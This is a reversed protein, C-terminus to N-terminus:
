GSVEVSMVLDAVVTLYRDAQGPPVETRVVLVTRSPGSGAAPDSVIALILDARAGEVTTHTVELGNALSEDSWTPADLDPADEAGTEDAPVDDALTSSQLAGLGLTEADRDTEQISVESRSRRDPTLLRVVDPPEFVGLKVWGRQAEISASSEGSRLVVRTTTEFRTVPYNALLKPLLIVGGGALLGAIAAAIGLGILVRRVRHRRSPMEAPM